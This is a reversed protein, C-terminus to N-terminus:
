VYKGSVRRSWEHTAVTPVSSSAAASTSDADSVFHPSDKASISRPGVITRTYPMGPKTRTARAADMGISSGILRASTTLWKESGAGGIVIVRASYSSAM